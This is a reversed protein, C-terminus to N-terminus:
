PWSIKSLAPFFMPPFFVTEEIFPAPFIPCSCAFSHFKAVRASWVCIFELHIFSRSTLCSDMLIRSSFMPLLRNSMPWLLKKWSVDGLSPLCFCFQVKPVKNLYFAEACCLFCDAFSLPLGSFPLLYKCTVNCIFPQFGLFEWVWCGLFLGTLFHDSFMFLCKELSSMCIALPCMSFTSLM